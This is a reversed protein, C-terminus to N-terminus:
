RRGALSARLLDLLPSHALKSNPSAANMAAKAGISGLTKLAGGGVGALLVSAIPAFGSILSSLFSPQNTDYVRYGASQPANAFEGESQPIAEDYVLRKTGGIDWWGGGGGLLPRGLFDRGQPANQNWKAGTPSTQGPVWGGKLLGASQRANEQEQLARIPQVFSLTGTLENPPVEQGAGQQAQYLQQLFGNDYM